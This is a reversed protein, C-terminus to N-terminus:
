AKPSVISLKITRGAHTRSSEYRINYDYLLKSARVNLRMALANPKMDLGLLAALETATGSWEPTSESLMAAIAELIKDKPELHLQTESRELDWSLRNEDRKLYLRQDQQDRGSIDLSATSDTRHEKQLIFAGDAAGLLGNTGSIKDFQDDAQQKRTHHVLLLCTGTEDVLQKLRCILEYDSAYSYKDGGAERVKQLTDIIILRTDPNEAIFQKLQAELGGGLSKAYIALRLKDTSDEGFMRYLREQLRRHNDELALYLVTGKHVKYGWLPLGTSVHYALQLMLFSKGVKPAGAFIYAGGYLLGDIVPPRGPYVQEFLDRMTVTPLYAPDSIKRLQKALDALSEEPPNHESISEPIIETRDKKFSQREDAGVSPLSATKEKQPLDM